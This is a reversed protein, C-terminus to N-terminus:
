CVFLRTITSWEFFLMCFLEKGYDIVRGHSWVRFWIPSRQRHSSHEVMSIVRVMPAGASM